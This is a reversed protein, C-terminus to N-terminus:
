FELVFNTPVILFKDRGKPKVWFGEKPHFIFNCAFSTSSYVVFM